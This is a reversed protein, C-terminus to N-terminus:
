QVGMYEDLIFSDLMVRLEDDLMDKVDSRTAAYLVMFAPTDLARCIDLFTRLGTSRRGSELSSITAVSLGLAEALEVQKLGQAHRVYRIILGLGRIGTDDQTM